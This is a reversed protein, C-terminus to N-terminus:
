SVLDRVMTKRAMWFIAASLLTFLSTLVLAWRLGESPGFHALNSLGDSLAGVFLPGLGLGILNLVLLLLAAATARTHAPVVSQATAFVPGYWLSGLVSPIINLWLATMPDAVTYIFYYSPLALVAAAAPVVAYGRADKRAAIDAFWGGLLTGIIGAAGGILGLALGLFGASKLGFPAALAALQDGHLRLFFAANFAGQGYGVFAMIGAAVAMLWFTPKGALVKLAASLPPAAEVQTTAIAAMHKRPEKLFIGAVLALVLGPAGAVLFAARWGYADAILGGMVLGLLSGIPIGLSYTALASARKEKPTYDAILSHACPNCGAEGFGVGMRAVLMQPFTQARGSLVTFLSWLAMCGAIIWPRSFREALRAIPIGLTTYFLAFALGTLMGLQWDALGLDQKIPEALISVVQRDLFSLIYAGLLISLAFARYRADFPTRTEVPIAAPAVADVM